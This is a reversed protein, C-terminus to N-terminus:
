ISHYIEYYKNSIRDWTYNRVTKHAMIGMKTLIAPNNVIKVICETISEQTPQVLFGEVGDTIIGDVGAEIQAKIGRLNADHDLRGDEFFKTTVAPYVGNWDIVKM